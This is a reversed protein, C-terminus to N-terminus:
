MQKAVPLTIFFSTGAGLESEFSIKGGHNTVIKEAISLGLGNGNKKGHSMFPEFIREKISDPIGLGTDRVEIIINQEDTKTTIYVSGGDPMSDCANKVIQLCAQYFERRDISVALNADYKKLLKINKGDVYDALQALIENMADAIFITQTNLLTKGQSFDLTSQVLDIILKAQETILNLVQKIDNAIDKKKIHEAYHQITLIPKKIDQILFNAMKGLSNLRDAMVLKEVLEANELALAANISIAALCEEDIADFRSNASNLLQIVAVVEGDKNNIPFCLNSKTKYGSSKDYSPNFRSDTYSDELNIIENDRASAGALGQGINLRVEKVDSGILVKSWLEHKGKDVIYLTGREANTLEKAAEVISNLVDDLKINSNVKRAAEIILHLKEPSLGSEKKTTTKQTGDPVPEYIELEATDGNYEFGENPEDVFSKKSSVEEFTDKFSFKQPETMNEADPVPEPEVDPFVSFPDFEPAFSYDVEEEKILPEESIFDIQDEEVPMEESKPGAELSASFDWKLYEENDEPMPEDSSPKTEDNFASAVELPEDFVHTSNPQEKIFSYDDIAPGSEIKFEDTLPSLNIPIEEIPKEITGPAALDFDLADNEDNSILGKDSSVGYLNQQLTSNSKVIQNLEDKKITYIQCDTNAVASSSRPIKELVEKEGFFQGATKKVVVPSSFIGSIKQKVEGEIILYVANSEDGAQFIIDGEKILMFDKPNVTINIENEKVGSFLKNSFVAATQKSQFM